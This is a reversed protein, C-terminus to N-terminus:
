IRAVSPPCEIIRFNRLLAALAAADNFMLADIISLHSVPTRGSQPYSLDPSELFKLNIGQRAFQQREYLHTGGAPNLYTTAGVSRCIAIVRQEGGLNRDKPLDSSTVIRPGLGLHSVLRTVTAGNFRAVNPDSMGMLESILPFVSHYRPATRYCNELQRLIRRACPVLRYYRDNIPLDHAGRLVPLTIWAPQGNRLVRNRNVWGDKIYQVDDHLVFVDSAAILQFYGLYPFFYPQMISVIM